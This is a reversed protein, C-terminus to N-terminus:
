SIFFGQFELPKECRNTLLQRYDERNGDTVARGDVLIEGAEPAYLGMLLKGGLKLRV